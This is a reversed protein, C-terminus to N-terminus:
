SILLGLLLLLSSPGLQVARSKPPNCKADLSCYQTANYSVQCMTHWSKCQYMNPMELCLDSYVQLVNCNSVLTIPDPSPCVNCASMNPMENCISYINSSAVIPSPVEKGSCSNTNCYQNLSQCTSTQNLSSETNCLNYGLSNYNCSFCAKKCEGFVQCYPSITNTKCWQTLDSDTVQAAVLLLFMTFRAPPHIPFLLPHRFLAHAVRVQKRAQNKPSSQLVNTNRYKLPIKVTM